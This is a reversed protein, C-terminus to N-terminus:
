YSSTGIRRLVGHERVYLTYPRWEGARVAPDEVAYVPGVRVVYVLPRGAAAEACLTAPRTVVERAAGPRVAVGLTDRWAVAEPADSALDSALAALLAVARADAPGCRGAPAARGAASACAGAALWAVCLRLPVWRARLRRRM